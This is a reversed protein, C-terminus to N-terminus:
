ASLQASWEAVPSPSLQDDFREMLNAECRALLAEGVRDAAGDPWPVPDGFVQKYLLEGLKADDAVSSVTYVRLAVQESHADVKKLLSLAAGQRSMRILDTHFKKRLLNTAPPEFGTIFTKWARRLCAGISPVGAGVSSQLFLPCSPGPLNIYAEFADRTGPAIWKALEGYHEATKYDKCAICMDFEDGKGAKTKVGNAPASTESIM